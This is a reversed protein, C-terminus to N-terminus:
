QLVSGLQFIPLYMALVLGGVVIGMIVMMIPEVMQALVDSLSNAQHQYHQALRSMMHDLGGSEEGVRILQFCLIPFVSQQKIAVSLADGQQLNQSVDEVAQRFIPNQQAQAANDLGKLLPLGAQQTMALSFFLQSLNATSILCGIIPLRLLMRQTQKRFSPSRQYRWLILLAVSTNIGVISPAHQILVQSCAMLARTFAPLPANFSRYLDSFQPLVWVLMIVIVILTVSLLLAPYRLAKGIKAKLEAQRKQQEALAFCSQDLRGTLEATAITKSYVPPFIDSFTVMAESLPTGMSVQQALRQLLCRWHRHPHDESLMLLCKALPLGAHLLAALQEIAHICDANKWALPRLSYQRQMKLATLGQRQLQLFVQDKQKALCIGTQLQQAPDIALWTFLTYAM